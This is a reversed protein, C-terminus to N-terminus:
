VPIPVAKTGTAGSLGIFLLGLGGVVLAVDIWFHESTLKNYAALIVNYIAEFPAAIGKGIADFPGSIAGGIGGLVNGPFGLVDGPIGELTGLLGGGGGSGSSSAPASGSGPSVNEAIKSLASAQRSPEDLQGPFLADFDAQLKPGGAGGYHGTDWGSTAIASIEARPTGSQKVVPGLYGWLFPQEIRRATAAIADQVNGFEEFDGSSVAQYPDGPYPRLNLYNFHGTGGPAYAGEAQAWAALVRPDVGTQQSVGGIFALENSDVAM